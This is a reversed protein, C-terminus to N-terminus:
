KLVRSVRDASLSTDVEVALVERAGEDLINFTQFRRGGYSTDSMFDVLRVVNPQPLMVLPQRFWVLVRKKARQPLNLRLM